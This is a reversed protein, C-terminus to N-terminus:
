HNAVAGAPETFVQGVPIARGEGYLRSSKGQFVGIHHCLSGPRQKVHHALVAFAIVHVAGFHRKLPLLQLVLAVHNEVPALIGPAFVHRVGIFQKDVFDGM